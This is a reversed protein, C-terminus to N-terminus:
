RWNEEVFPVHLCEHPNPLGHFSVSKCEKPIGFKLVWLKYSAIWEEPFVDHDATSANLIGQAALTFTRKEPPKLPNWIPKGAKVYEEWVFSGAGDRILSVTANGDKEKGKPCCYSPYDKMYCHDSDYNIIGDLSGIVVQDLDMYLLTSTEVGEPHKAWFGMGSWWYPLGTQIIKIKPNIKKAEPNSEANPGVYLVFEFPISTNRLVSNYLKNVYEVPYYDGSWCAGLTFEKTKM